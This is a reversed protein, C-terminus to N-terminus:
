LIVTTFSQRLGKPPKTNIYKQYLLLEAINGKPSKQLKIYEFDTFDKCFGTLETFSLVYAASLSFFICNM